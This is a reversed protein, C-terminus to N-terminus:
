RETLWGRRRIDEHIYEAIKGHVLASPHPDIRSVHSQGVPVEAWAPSLDLNDVGAEGLRGWFEPGYGSYIAVLLPIGAQRCQGAIDLLSARSSVWGPHDTLTHRPSTVDGDGQGPEAARASDMHEMRVFLSTVQFLFSLQRIRDAAEPLSSPWSPHRRWTAENPDAIPHTDNSVYVLLVYDPSYRMGEHRLYAAEQVTNYGNVGANIVQWAGLSGENLLEELRDSFTEGQSVGWGFTVSDGLVLIRKEGAPKRFPVDDDRLGNPNLEVRESGLWYSVSAPHRYGLVPDDIMGQMHYPLNHFFQIGFPNITRLGWEVALVSALLTILLLYINGAWRQARPGGRLLVWLLSIAIALLAMLLCTYAVSYRGLIVPESSKHLLGVGLLAAVLLLLVATVYRFARGSSGTKADGPTHIDVMSIVDQARDALCTRSYQEPRGM